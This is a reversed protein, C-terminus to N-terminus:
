NIWLSKIIAIISLILSLIAISTTIWYKKDDWISPNKLEPNWHIYARGKETLLPNCYNGDTLKVASILDLIILLNIDDNDVNSIENKRNSRLLLLIQKCNYNLEIRDM